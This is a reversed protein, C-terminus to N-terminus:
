LFMISSILSILNLCTMKSVGRIGYYNRKLDVFIGCGIYGKKLAQRIDEMLNIFAHSTSFNGRFSSQLDYIIKTETLFQYVRKYILKKLLKKRYKILTFYPM